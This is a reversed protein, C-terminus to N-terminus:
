IIISNYLPLLASIHIKEGGVFYHIKKPGAISRVMDTKTLIGALDECSEIVPLSSIRNRTTIYAAETLKSRRSICIPDKTMVDYVLFTNKIESPIFRQERRRRQDQKM